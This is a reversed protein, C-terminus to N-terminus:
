MRRKLRACVSRNTLWFKEETKFHDSAIIREWAGELVFFFFFVELFRSKRSLNGFFSLASNYYCRLISSILIIPNPLYLLRSDGRINLMALFIETGNRFFGKMHSDNLYFNCKCADACLVCSKGTSSVM